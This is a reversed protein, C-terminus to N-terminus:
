RGTEVKGSEKFDLETCITNLFSLEQRNLLAGLPFGLGLAPVTARSHLHVILYCFGAM